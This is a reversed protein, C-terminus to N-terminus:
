LGLQSLLAQARAVRGPEAKAAKRRGLERQWDDVCERTKLWDITAALELITAPEAQMRGLAVRTNDLDLAGPSADLDATTLEFISYPVGDSARREHRERILGFAIADEVAEALDSSYPGYHHYEYAFGSELGLRDLLYLMKQLRVRGVIRGGAARIVEAVLRDDEKREM